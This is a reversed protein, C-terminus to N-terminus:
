NAKLDAVISRLLKEANAFCAEPPAGQDIAYAIAIAHATGLITIVDAMDHNGMKSCITAVDQAVTKGMVLLWKAHDEQKRDM